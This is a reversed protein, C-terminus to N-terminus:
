PISRVGLGGDLFTIKQEQPAAVPTAQQVVLTAADAALSYPVWVALAAMPMAHAARRRLSRGYVVSRELGQLLFGALANQPTTATAATPLLGRDM